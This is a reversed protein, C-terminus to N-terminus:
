VCQQRSGEERRRHCWKQLTEETIDVRYFLKGEEFKVRGGIKKNFETQQQESVNSWDINDYAYYNTVKTEAMCRRVMARKNKAKSDATQYSM